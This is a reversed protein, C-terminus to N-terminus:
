FETGVYYYIIYENLFIQIILIVNENTNRPLWATTADPDLITDVGRLTNNKQVPRQYVFNYKTRGQKYSM